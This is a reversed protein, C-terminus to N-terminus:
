FGGRDFYTRRRSIKLEQLISSRARLDFSFNSARLQNGAIPTWNFSMDWCHLERMVSLTTLTAGKFEFDWGTSYGFKWKPTLSFDGQLTLAQVRQPEANGQKNYGWNYSINLTWPISFDVYLDPNAKVFKKVAEKAPDSNNTNQTSKKNKNFIEPSIRTGVSINANRLTALGGGKNILYHRTIRGAPNLPTIGDSALLGDPAYYYPDLSANFNLNILNKFLSTNASLNVNALNMSDALLNYSSGISLNDLLSIKEFSKAATDSKSRIKAELQNTISFSAMGSAGATAGLAPYKALYRKNPDDQRVQIYDFFKDKLDPSYSLSFSPAMTHRIAQLRGKTGFQFTGYIRTNMSVGASWQYANFFGNLTDIKVANSDAIFRYNLQKTFIEGRYSVSPTFNIYKALKFNPLAIPVSFTTRFQGNKIVQNLSELSNISIVKTTNSLGLSQQRLEEQSLPRQEAVGYIRYDTYTTVRQSYSIDNTAQFGGSVDLGVRFSEYWKGLQKKEPVFPNFQNFGLSYDLSSNMVKTSVNQDVRFGLSTRINKGFNRTGQISSGFTNNTYLNVEDLRRNNRNFGNSVLNVSASFSRDPRKNQPSHSWSLNFDRSKAWDKKDVAENAQVNYNFQLNLSGSYKYKKTYQSQTAIGWSGRSYVQGMVKVGIYENVPFYWGFDRFYFGRNNPEEGYTGMIFGSTGLEKKKPVPFFGFPLGIPLPINSLVFNFPGSIISKRNVLKIKTASIHFHPEKLNCTTYKANMVYLNDEPDKKVKVGQLFGEGQQTQIGKIIAKKSKFNYRITDANYKEGGETFIPKGLVKTSNKTTDARGYAFVESKGWDLRIFDAELEIQGYTVKGKGYLNVAKGDVDYITSDEAYYTATTELSNEKSRLSDPISVKVTDKTEKFKPNKPVARQTPRSNNPQTTPNGFTNGLNGFNPRQAFTINSILIFFLLLFVVGSRKNTTIKICDCNKLCLVKIENM